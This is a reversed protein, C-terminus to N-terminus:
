YRRYRQRLWFEFLILVRLQTLNCDLGKGFQELRELLSARDVFGMEVSRIHEPDRLMQAAMPALCQNFVAGFAAKSKRNLVADPLMEAFARRMLHRPKGPRCVEEPPISLMFEVLPRHTFPHTYSVHEFKEPAQLRRSSLMEHLARFRRRREAPAARWNLPPAEEAPEALVRHVRESLSDAQTHRQWATPTLDAGAPPTWRTLWMRAARWLIPYIPIRLAQSWAYAERAAEGLHFHRLHGAVQDSDDLTNGMLLDGLQGTLLVTAGLSEMERAVADYRAQWFRPAAGGTQEPSVFPCEALSLHIAPIGYAQEVARFYPEDTGGEHTYSITTLPAKLKAAMCAVSSSDLGGSLEALVHRHARVRVAVAERFLERLRAEYAGEGALRVERDIPLDWFREVHTGAATFRVACGPPAARIGRYPTRGGPGALSLFLAVYEEDLQEVGTARVLGALSSSWLLRRADRFYYLPRVGAFDCALVVSRNDSDWVALSFDGVLEGLGAPGRVQYLGLAYRGPSEALDVDNDLRGDFACASGDGVITASTMALGPAVFPREGSILGALEPPVPRLDFYFVGAISGSV